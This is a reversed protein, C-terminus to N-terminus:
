SRRLPLLPPPGSQGRRSRESSSATAYIKHYLATNLKTPNGPVTLGDCQALDSEARVEIARAGAREVAKYHAEFDGQLALVGATKM